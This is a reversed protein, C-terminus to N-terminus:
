ATDGQGAAAMTILGRGLQEVTERQADEFRETLTENESKQCEIEEELLEIRLRATALAAAHSEEQKQSDRVVLYEYRGVHGCIPRTAAYIPFGLKWARWCFAWDESLQLDKGEFDYGPFESEPVEMTKFCPVYNPHVKDMTAVVAEIVKRHIATYAAGVVHVQILEDKGICYDPTDKHWMIAVGEGHKKKSVVGGVISETEACKRALHLLDGEYAPYHIGDAEHEPHSGYWSIDHDIMIMVEADTQLFSQVAVARARETLADAGPIDQRVKWPWKDEDPGSLGGRFAARTFDRM